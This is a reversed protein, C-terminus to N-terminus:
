NLKQIFIRELEQNIEKKNTFYFKTIFSAFWKKVIIPVWSM